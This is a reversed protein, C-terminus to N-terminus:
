GGKKEPKGFLANFAIAAVERSGKPHLSEIWIIFNLVKHRRAPTWRNAEREGVVPADALVPSGFLAAKKKRDDVAFTTWANLQAQIDSSYYEFSTMPDREIRPLENPDMKKEGAVPIRVSEM